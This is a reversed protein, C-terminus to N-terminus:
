LPENAVAQWYRRHQDLSESADVVVEILRVGPQPLAKALAREFEGLTSVQRYGLGYLQAVNSFALHTPTLWVREFEPLGSQPLHHFITGGNNNMLVIIADVGRAMLLGNMDHFFALDGILGLTIGPAGGSAAAIGLLTSLNGDIGSVGRNAMLRLRKEGAGSFSDLDRIPMSNSSFLRSGDPLQEMCHQIIGAESSGHRTALQEARREEQRFADLWQANDLAPLAQGLQQCFRAPDGAVTTETLHLPDRRRSNGDVLIHRSQRSSELFSALARSVPMAGFRLVWDPPHDAAFAKRRLFSDYRSIILDSYHDGFRLGSLPDALIPADLQRALASVAAAFGDSYAEPGCIIVGRKGSLVAALQRVEGDDVSPAFPTAPEVDVEAGKTCWGGEGPVLPERFPINLHVPGPLPSCATLAVQRGLRRIEDLLRPEPSPTQLQHFARVHSGFLQEQDTTQNAGCGHLEPPRDASLLLLPTASENAEIVAPYWHAPASGSTAIVAAPLHDAKALGLAFFAASREDVQIWTRVQPHRECVLALPTSRSGPSIVVHRVGASVLGDILAQSWQLNVEAQGSM